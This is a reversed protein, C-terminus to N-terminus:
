TLLRWRKDKGYSFRDSRKCMSCRLSNTVARPDAEPRYNRAQARVVIEMATLPGCERLIREAVASIGLAGFETEPADFEPVAWLIRPGGARQVRRILGMTHMETFQQRVTPLHFYRGPDTLKLLEHADDITFLRDRPLLDPLLESIPKHITRAAKRSSGYLHSRLERIRKVSERYDSRAAAIAKDRKNAALQRLRSYEDM